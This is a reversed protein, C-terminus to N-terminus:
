IALKVSYKKPSVLNKMKGCQLANVKRKEVFFSNETFDIKETSYFLKMFHRNKLDLKLTKKEKLRYSNLM